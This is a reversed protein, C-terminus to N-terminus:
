HRRGWPRPSRHSLAVEAAAPSAAIAQLQEVTTMVTRPHAANFWSRWRAIRVVHESQRLWAELDALRRSARLGGTAQAEVHCVRAQSATATWALSRFRFPLGYSSRLRWLDLLIIWRFPGPACRRLAWVEADLAEQMPSELQAVFTLLPLAFTNYVVAAGHLGM